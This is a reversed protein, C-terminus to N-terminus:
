GCSDGSHLVGSVFPESAGRSTERDGGASERFIGEIAAVAKMRARNGYIYQDPRGGCAMIYKNIEDWLRNRQDHNM